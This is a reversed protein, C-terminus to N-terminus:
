HGSEDLHTIPADSFGSNVSLLFLAAALIFFHVPAWKVIM